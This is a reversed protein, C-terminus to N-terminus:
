VSAFFALGYKSGCFIADLLKAFLQLRHGVGPASAPQLDDGDRRRWLRHKKDAANAGIDLFAASLLLPAVVALLARIWIKRM